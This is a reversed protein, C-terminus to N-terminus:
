WEINGTEPDLAYVRNHTTLYVTEETAVATGAGLGDDDSTWEVDGTEADVALARSVWEEGQQQRGTLYFTGDFAAIDTNRFSGHLTWEHDGTTVDHAFLNGRTGVVVTGDTVTPPGGARDIPATWETEGSEADLAMLNDNGVAFVYGHAVSPPTITHLERSWRTEGSTGNLAVIPGGGGAGAFITEDAFTIGWSSDVRESWEKEGTEANLAYVDDTSAYVTGDDVALTRDIDDVLSEGVETRWLRDGSERDFAFVSQNNSGSGIYVTEGEIVPGTSIGFTESWWRVRGGGEPGVATTAGTNAGDAQFQSWESTPEIRTLEADNSAEDHDEADGESGDELAKKDVEEGEGDSDDADDLCGTLTTVVGIAVGNLLHRRKM